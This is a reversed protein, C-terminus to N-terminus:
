VVDGIVTVDVIENEELGEVNEPIVVLGNAKLLSSLIGSGTIRLPEAVVGMETNKLTVRLYARKADRNAVRETLRAKVRIRSGVLGTEHKLFENYFAELSILAAVPLGSVCFVPVGSVNYISITRGPKILVGGFVLSGFEQVVDPVIDKAGLSTGGTIVIVQLDEKLIKELTSRLEKEVDSVTGLDITDTYGSQFHNLLLPQTTNKVSGTGPVIENGTSIIGMRVKKFVEVDDHGIAILSALHQARIVDGRSIILQGNSIDEGSRSVNEYKRVPRTIEVTDGRRVADEAMVVSDSKDPIQGGTYIEYSYGTELSHHSSQGAEIEGLIDLTIPNFESAGSVDSFIVAYGDVASRNFSPVDVDSVVDNASIRGLSDNPDIKEVPICNWSTSTLKKVAENFTILKEFRGMKKRHSPM